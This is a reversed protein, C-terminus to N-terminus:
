NSSLSPSSSPDPWAHKGEAIPPTPWPADMPGSKGSTAKSFLYNDHIINNKFFNKCLYLSWFVNGFVSVESWFFFKLFILSM